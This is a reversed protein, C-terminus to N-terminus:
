QVFRHPRVPALYNAADSGNVVSRSQIELRHGDLRRSWRLPRSLLVNSSPAFRHSKPRPGYIRGSRQPPRSLVVFSRQVRHSNALRV